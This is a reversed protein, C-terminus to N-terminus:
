RNYLRVVCNSCYMIATNIRVVYKIDYMGLHYMVTNFLKAMQLIYQCLM